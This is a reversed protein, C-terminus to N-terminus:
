ESSAVRLKGERSGIVFFGIAATLAVGSIVLWVSQPQVTHDMVFGGLLPGVTWGLHLTLSFSGMYIGTMGEPALSSAYASAIPTDVIEALTIIAVAGIMVLMNPAYGVILYGTGYMLAAVSLVRLADYKKLWSAVIVLLSAVMVGNEFYLWGIQVKTLGINTSAHVSLTVLLQGRVIYMMLCLAVFRMMRYDSFIRYFKYEQKQILASRWTETVKIIAIVAAIGVMVSTSLFMLYYGGVVIFGGIAPGIAWGVNAASRTLGYVEARRELPVIDATISDVLPFIAAGLFGSIVYVVAFSAFSMNRWVIYALVAFSLARATLLGKVLRSRGFVDSLAGAITSASAGVLGTTTLMLGITTMPIGNDEHLYLALFPMSLAFGLAGIFRILALWKVLPNLDALIKPKYM